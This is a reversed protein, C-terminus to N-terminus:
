SSFSPTTTNEWSAILSLLRSSIRAISSRGQLGGASSEADAGAWSSRVRISINGENLLRDWPADYQAKFEQEIRIVAYYTNPHQDAQCRVFYVPLLCKKISLSAKYLWYIDIFQSLANACVNQEDRDFSFTPFWQDGWNYDTCM